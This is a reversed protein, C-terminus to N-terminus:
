ENKMTIQRLIKDTNCRIGECRLIETLNTRNLVQLSTLLNKIVVETALFVIHAIIGRVWIM